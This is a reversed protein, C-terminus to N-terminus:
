YDFTGLGASNLINSYYDMFAKVSWVAIVLSLVTLIISVIGVMKAKKDNQKLYKFAPM